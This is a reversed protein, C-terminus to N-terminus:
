AFPQNGPAENAGAGKPLYKEDRFYITRTPFAMELGHREVLEMIELMLGEQTALYEKWVTSKTFCYIRVDLSSAGFETFHVFNFGQDIDPHKGILERIEALLGKMQSANTEYTVGITMDIRRVNRQSHNTIPSSSFTQNPLTVLSKDFRRIRTTRFGVEEVTGEIGGVEIWDGMQFPRDTFVVVSGFVNSVTDQAALALALGGVGLSALLSTVSYGLNQVVLVSFTLVVIIKMTKRLLPVLQDDLRSQTKSSARAILNTIVDVVALVAWGLTVALAVQLGQDVYTRIDVPEVPLALPLSALYWFGIQVSWSLPIPLLSVLDDDWKAQTQSAFRSLYRRFLHIVLGRTVFGVFIILTALILNPVSVGWLVEQNAWEPLYPDLFDM